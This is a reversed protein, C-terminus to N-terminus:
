EAFGKESYFLMSIEDPIASGVSPNAQFALNRTVSGRGEIPLGPVETLGCNAFRSEVLVQRGNSLWNYNRIVIPVKRKEFYIDQWHVTENDEAADDTEHYISANVTVTRTETESTVPQGALPDGTFGEPDVYNHNGEIDVSTVAIPEPANDGDIRAVLDDLSEDPEGLVVATGLSPYFNLPRRPYKSLIGDQTRLNALTNAVITPDALSRAEQVYSALLGLLLRINAGISLRFLNPIINYAIYPTAAKLMQSSWGDFPNNNENLKLIALETDPIFTPTVATPDTTFGSFILKDVRHLFNQTTIDAAGDAVAVEETVATNFQNSRSGRKQGVVRITGAGANGTLTLKLRGPWRALATEDDTDITISKNEIAGVKGAPIEYDRLIYGPEGSTKPENTPLTTPNFWGLLLHIADDPLLEFEWEGGGGRKSIISEPTAGGGIISESETEEATPDLTNRTFVFHNRILKAVIAQPDSWDPAAGDFVNAGTIPTGYKPQRGIFIYSDGGTRRQPAM